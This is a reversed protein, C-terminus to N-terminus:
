VTFLYNRCNDRIESVEAWRGGVWSHPQYGYDGLRELVDTSCGGYKALHRDEIELLLVPRHRRLTEKAGDLVAPEAGEVDAKIFAVKELGVRDVLQDLTLVRTRVPRATAFESNPGPGQSGVTLYARGHVPLGHRRPLSLTGPGHRAGLAMRHVVVNASGLSRSALRLWRAPGPLPEVSHVRGTPGVLASLAWTYLGYEAGVDLCNDGRAVLGHLGAVEDEVWAVRGAAWKLAGAATVVRRSM